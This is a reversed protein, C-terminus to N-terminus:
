RKLCTGLCCIIFKLGSLLLYLLFEPLFKMRNRIICYCYNNDFSWPGGEVVRKLDVLHYFQFLFVGDGYDKISVGRAQRWIDALRNKISNTHIM